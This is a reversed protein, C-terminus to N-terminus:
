LKLALRYASYTAQAANGPVVCDGIPYIAPVVNKLESILGDVPKVGAALIVSDAQLALNEGAMNVSVTTKSIENIAVNLYLPIRMEVLRRLLGRFTIMDDPGKRGGLGSHSVLAVQRGQEALFIATEMALMSGGIVACKSGAQVRGTIVDNAQFVNAGDAGPTELGAPVAGTAIIAIDPQFAIVQERTVKNNLVIPVGLKELERKLYDIIAAYGQKGLLTSAIKWQGGLEPEKEFLSVSYGRKRCLCAAELGALGGGIVMVKKVPGGNPLAPGTERYLGPNVTCSRWSTRLCNNCYLCRRVEDEGGQQLKGPLDPDALLPRGMVVFDASGGAIIKEATEPDVKGSVLVPLGVNKKVRDAIPAMVGKPSLYSPAMLTTWYELGSSISVADAGADRIIGAQATVDEPTVGGEIDDNGNIRVLLPFERGTKEKTREIVLRVFRTRNEVSGGYEDERRNIAPSLFTSLLCGHCAHLEVADAGTQNARVAAAAFDEIYKEIEGATLAQYPKDGTMLPTKSPVKITMGAPLSKAVLLLLMGPHMLQICAKAGQEHIIDVLKKWGPIYSDDFIAPNYPMMDERTISAFQTIVMAAGGRARLRYYELMAETVQGQADALANGMAGMIIRNNLRLRGINGSKFLAPFRTTRNVESM